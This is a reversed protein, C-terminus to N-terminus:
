ALLDGCTACHWAPWEECRRLPPSERVIKEAETGGCWHQRRLTGRYVTYRAPPFLALLRDAEDHAARAYGGFQPPMAMAAAADMAEHFAENVRRRAAAFPSELLATV